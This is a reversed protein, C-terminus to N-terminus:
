RRRGGASRKSKVQNYFARKGSTKAAQVDKYKANFRGSSEEAALVEEVFTKKRENNSLRASYYETPGEIITGIQSFVPVHSRNDKKYNRKPDLVSRLRLLQLDRKLEPTLNTRPLKFWDEGATAIEEQEALSRDLIPDQIRKPKDALDRIYGDLLRHANVKAIGGKSSIYPQPLLSAGLRPPCYTQIHTTDKRSNSETSQSGVRDQNELSRLRHGADHLLQQIQADPLDEDGSIANAANTEAGLRLPNM